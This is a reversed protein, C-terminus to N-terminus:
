RAVDLAGVLGDFDRALATAATSWSHDGSIVAGTHAIGHASLAGSLAQSSRRVIGEYGGADGCYLAVRRLSALSGAQAVPNRWALDAPDENGPTTGFIAGANEGDAQPESYMEPRWTLDSLDVAGSYSSMAAVLWPRHAAYIAAGYGGMSFGAVGRAGAWPLTRLNADVAEILHGLHFREWNSVGATSHTHDTYWGGRGGDPMVVIVDHGASVARADGLQHWDMSSGSSGHLLYVVPYRKTSTWYGEPVLVAIEAGRHLESSWMGARYLRDDVKTSWTLGWGSAAAAPPLTPLAAPLAVSAGVAAAGGLLRRRSLTLRNLITRRLHRRSRIARRLSSPSLSPRSVSAGSVSPRSLLESPSLPM